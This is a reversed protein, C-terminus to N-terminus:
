TIEQSRRHATGSAPGSAAGLRRLTRRLVARELQTVRQRSPEGCRGAFDLDGFTETLRFRLDGVLRDTLEGVAEVEQKTLKLKFKARM